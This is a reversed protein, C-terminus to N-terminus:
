RQGHVEVRVIRQSPIPEGAFFYVFRADYHNVSYISDLDVIISQGGTAQGAYYTNNQAIAPTAYGVTLSVCSLLLRSFLTM